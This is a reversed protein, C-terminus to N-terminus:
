VIKIFQIGFSAPTMLAAFLRCDVSFLGTVIGGTIEGDGNVGGEIGDGGDVIIGGVGEGVVGEGIVGEGVVGEGVVGEGVVGEGVIGEGIVGVVVGDLLERVHIIIRMTM